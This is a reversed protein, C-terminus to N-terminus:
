LFHKHCHPWLSLVVLLCHIIVQIHGQVAKPTTSIGKVMQVVQSNEPKDVLRAMLQAAKTNRNRNSSDLTLEEITKARALEHGPAFTVVKTPHTGSKPTFNEDAQFIDPDGLDQNIVTSESYQSQSIYSARSEGRVDAM